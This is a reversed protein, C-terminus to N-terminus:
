RRRVRCGAVLTVPTALWAPARLRQMTWFVGAALLAIHLGSVVFLHFTGTREFGVRLTHTLGTRDGFLMPM